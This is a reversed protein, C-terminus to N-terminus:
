EIVRFVGRYDKDKVHPEIEIDKIPEKSAEKHLADVFLDVQEKEGCIVIKVKDPVLPQVIGELEYKRAHKQITSLLAGDKPEITITIKLCKNM